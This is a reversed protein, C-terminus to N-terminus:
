IGWHHAVQNQNLNFAFQTPAFGAFEVKSEGEGLFVKTASIAFALNGGDVTYKGDEAVEIEVEINLAQAEEGENASPMALVLKLPEAKFAMNIFDKAPTLTPTYAIKYSVDGLASIINDAAEEDGLISVILDKVPFSEFCVSDNVVTAKIEVGKETDDQAEVATTLMKGQYSGYMTKTTIETPNKPADDDDSCSSFGMTCGLMMVAVFMKTLSFNKKM